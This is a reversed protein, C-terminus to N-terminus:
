GGAVVGIPPTNAPAPTASPGAPGIRQMVFDAAQGATGNTAYMVHAPQNNGGTECVPDGANCLDITKATYNSGIALPPGGVSKLFEGSPKGFLAVAAIHNALERPLPGNIGTPHGFGDPISDATVYGMVAAGQSYGGLVMKTNPCGKAMDTVHNRADIVGEAATPFDKSAPYNVPYVDVSKGAADTRLADVFAQGVNGVGPPEDTGRAFLVQVDPCPAAAAPPVGLPSTVLASTTLAAAGFLGALRCAQKSHNSGIGNSDM